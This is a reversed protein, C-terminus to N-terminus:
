LKLKNIHTELKNVIRKFKQFSQHVNKYNREMYNVRQVNDRLKDVDKEICKLRSLTNIVNQRVIDSADRTWDLSFQKENKWYEFLAQEDIEYGIIIKIPEHTADDYYIDYCKVLFKNLDGPNVIVDGIVGVVRYNTIKITYRQSIFSNKRNDIINSDINYDFNKQIDKIDNKTTKEMNKNVVYDSPNKCIFTILKTM